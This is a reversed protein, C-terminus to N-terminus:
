AVRNKANVTNLLISCVATGYETAINTEANACPEEVTTEDIRNTNEKKTVPPCPSKSDAVMHAKDKIIIVRIYLFKLILGLKSYERKEIIEKIPYTNIPLVSVWTRKSFLIKDTISIAKRDKKHRILAFAIFSFPKFNLNLTSSYEEKDATTQIKPSPRQLRIEGCRHFPSDTNIM